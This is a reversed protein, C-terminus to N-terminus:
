VRLTPFWGFVGEFEEPSVEGSIQGSFEITELAQLEGALEDETIEYGLDQATVLLGCAQSYIPLSFQDCIFSTTSMQQSIM